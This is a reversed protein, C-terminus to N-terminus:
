ENLPISIFNGYNLGSNNKFNTKSIAVGYDVTLM